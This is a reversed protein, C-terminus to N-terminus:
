ATRKFIYIIDKALIGFAKDLSSKGVLGWTGYGMTIKPNEEAVSLCVSGIPLEKNKPVIWKGDSQLVEKLEPKKASVIDSLFVREESSPAPDNRLTRHPKKFKRPV